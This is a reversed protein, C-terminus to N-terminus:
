PTTLRPVPSPTTSHKSRSAPRSPSSFNILVVVCSVPEGRAMRALAERLFAACADNGREVALQLPTLNDSDVADM